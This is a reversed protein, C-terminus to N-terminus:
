INFAIAPQEDLPTGETAILHCFPFCILDHSSYYAKCESETLNLVVYLWNDRLTAKHGLIFFSVCLTCNGPNLQWHFPLQYWWKNEAPVHSWKERHQYTQSASSQGTATNTEARWHDPPPPLCPEHSTTVDPVLVWNHASVRRPCLLLVCWCGNEDSILVDESM